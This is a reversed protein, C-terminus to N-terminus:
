WDQLQDITDREDAKAELVMQWVLPLSYSKEIVEVGHGLRRTYHAPDGHPSYTEGHCIVRKARTVEVWHIRVCENCYRQEFYTRM